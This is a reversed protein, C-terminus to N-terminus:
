AIQSRAPMRSRHHAPVRLDPKAVRFAEMGRVHRAAFFGMALWFHLVLEPQNWMPNFTMVMLFQVAVATYFLALWNRVRYDIALGEVARLILYGTPLAFLCFGLLGGFALMDLLDSHSPQRFTPSFPHELIPSGLWWTGVLPSQVFEGLRVLYTFVRVKPSGSPLMERFFMLITAAFVVGALLASALLGAVAIRTGRRSQRSDRWVTSVLLALVLLTALYGTNKVTLPGALLLVGCLLLRRASDRVVIMGITAAAVPLFIEEHFIHPQDVFRAGALWIGLMLSIVVGAGVVYWITWRAFRATMTPSSFVRFAPYVALIGLARGLFSEEVAEGGAITAFSGATVLMALVVFSTLPWGLGTGRRPAFVFLAGAAAALELPLYKLAPVSTAGWARNGPDIAFLCAVIVAAVLLRTGVAAATIAFRSARDPLDWSAASDV